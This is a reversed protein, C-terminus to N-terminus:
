VGEATKQKREPPLERELKYAQAHILRAEALLKATTAKRIENEARLSELQLQEYEKSSYFGPAESCGIEMGKVEEPEKPEQEPQLNDAIFATIHDAYEAADAARAKDAQEELEKRIDADPMEDIDGSLNFVVKGIMSLVVAEFPNEIQHAALDCDPNDCIFYIKSQPM